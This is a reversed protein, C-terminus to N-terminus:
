FYILLWGIFLIAKKNITMGKFVFFIYINLKYIFVSGLHLCGLYDSVILNITQVFFYWALFSINIGFCVRVNRQFM